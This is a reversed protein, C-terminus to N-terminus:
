FEATKWVCEEVTFGEVMFDEVVGKVHKLVVKYSPPFCHEYINRM